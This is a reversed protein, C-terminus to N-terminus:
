RESRSLKRVRRHAERKESIGQLALRSGTRHKDHMHRIRKHSRLAHWDVISVAIDLGVCSGLRVHTFKCRVSSLTSTCDLCRFTGSGSPIPSSVSKVSLQYTKTMSFCQNGELTLLSGRRVIAALSGKGGCSDKLSCVLTSPPSDSAKSGRWLKGATECCAM